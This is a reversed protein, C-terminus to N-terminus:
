NDLDRIQKKSDWWISIQPSDSMNCLPEATKAEKNLIVADKKGKSWGFVGRAGASGAM